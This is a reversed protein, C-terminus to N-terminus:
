RFLEINEVIKTAHSRKIAFFQTLAYIQLDKRPYQNKTYVLVCYLSQHIFLGQKLLAQIDEDKETKYCQKYANKVFNSRESNSNSYTIFANHINLQTQKYDEPFLKKLNTTVKQAYQQSYFAKSLHKKPQTDQKTMKNKSEQMQKKPVEIKSIEPIPKKEEKKQELTPKPEFTQNDKTEQETTKQTTEQQTITKLLSLLTNIPEELTKNTLLPNIIKILEKKQDDNLYPVIEQLSRITVLLTTTSEKSPNMLISKYIAYATEKQDIKYLYSLAINRYPYEYDSASNILYKQAEETPIDAIASFCEEVFQNSEITYILIPIADEYKTKRFFYIIEPDLKEQNLYILNLLLEASNKSSSDLLKQKIKANYLNPNSVIEKKILSYVQENDIHDILNELIYDKENQYNPDDYLKILKDLALPSDSESAFYDIYAKKQNPAIDDKKKYMNEIQQDKESTGGDEKQFTKCSFLIIMLILFIYYRM